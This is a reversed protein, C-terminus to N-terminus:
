KVNNAELINKTPNLLLIALATFLMYSPLPRVIMGNSFLSTVCFSIILYKGIKNTQISYLKFLLFLMTLLFLGGGEVIFTLYDNHAGKESWWIDTMILDSGYGNGFIWQSINNDMLQSFKAKYMSVRGSSILDILNSNAIYLIFFPTTLLFVYSFIPMFIKSPLKLKSYVNLFVFVFLGLLATRVGWGSSVSYVVLFFLIAVLEAKISKVYLLSCSIFFLSVVLYATTHVGGFYSPWWYEFRNYSDPLIILGVVTLLIALQLLRKGAFKVLHSDTISVKILILLYIIPLYMRLLYIWSDIISTENLIGSIFLLVASFGLSLYVFIYKKPTEPILYLGISLISLDTLYNVFTIMLISSEGSAWPSIALKVFLLSIVLHIIVENKKM